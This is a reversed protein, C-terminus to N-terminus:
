RKAEEAPDPSPQTTMIAEQGTSGANPLFDYQSLHPRAAYHPILPALGQSAEDSVVAPMAPNALFLATPRDKSRLNDRICRTM